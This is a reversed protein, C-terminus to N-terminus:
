FYVIDKDRHIANGYKILKDKDVDFIIVSDDATFHKAWAEIKVLLNNIVRNTNAVEYVSYQLRILSESYVSLSMIDSKKTSGTKKDIGEHAITGRIQPTAKYLTEDEEMYVNHLYISYPCFIFDNLLAISIYDDMNLASLQETCIAAM